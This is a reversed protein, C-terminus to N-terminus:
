PFDISRLMTEAVEAKAGKLRVVMTLRNKGDVQPFHIGVVDGKTVLRASKDDVTVPRSTYGERDMPDSYWGYDFSVEMSPSAYQGALSDVAQVPAPKLDPPARFTFAKGASVTQWQAPVTTTDSSDCGAVAAILLLLRSLSRMAHGSTLRCDAIPLRVDAIWKENV